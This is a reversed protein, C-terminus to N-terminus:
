PIDQLESILSTVLKLLTLFDVPAIPSREVSFLDTNVSVILSFTHVELIRVELICSNSLQVLRGDLRNVFTVEFEEYDNILLVLLLSPVACLSVLYSVLELEGNLCTVLHFM